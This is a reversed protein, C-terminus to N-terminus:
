LIVKLYMCVYMCLVKEMVVQTLWHYFPLVLRSKLKLASVNMSNNVKSSSYLLLNISLLEKIYGAAHYSVM